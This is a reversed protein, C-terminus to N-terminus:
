EERHNLQRHYSNILDNRHILQMWDDDDGDDDDDGVVVGTLSRICDM